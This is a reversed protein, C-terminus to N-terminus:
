GQCFHWTGDPKRAFLVSEACGSDLLYVVLKSCEDLEGQSMVKDATLAAYPHL